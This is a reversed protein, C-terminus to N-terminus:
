ETLSEVSATGARRPGARRLNQKVNKRSGTLNEEVKRFSDCSQAKVLPIPTWLKLNEPQGAKAWRGAPSKFDSRNCDKKALPPLHPQGGAVSIPASLM